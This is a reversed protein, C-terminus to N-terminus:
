KSLYKVTEENCEGEEHMRCMPLSILVYDYLDQALDINDVGDYEDSEFSTEVPLELDELCRDCAVTVTGDISCRVEIDFGDVEVEVAADLDAALIEGNEFTAFFEGDLHWEFVNKGAKLGKVPIVFPQLPLLLKTLIM